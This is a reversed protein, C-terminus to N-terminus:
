IKGNVAKIAKDNSAKIQQAVIEIKRAIASRGYELAINHLVAAMGNVHILHAEIIDLQSKNIVVEGSQAPIDVPRDEM